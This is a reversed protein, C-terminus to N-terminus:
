AAPVKGDPWAAPDSWRVQRMASPAPAEAEAAGHDHHEQAGAGTAGLLGASVFVFFLQRLLPKRMEDM